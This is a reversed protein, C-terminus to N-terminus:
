SAARLKGKELVFREGRWTVKNGLLSALWIGAGALDRGPVLWLERRIGRGGLVKEAVFWGELLRLLISAALLGWAWGAGGSALVAAIAWLTSFTLLTARYGGPRADRITRGWRMQHQVFGSLTYEPLVTELDPATLRVHYGAQAIRRGLEYDDAVYELLPQFGGIAELAQRTFALTGGLGFRIGRELKWAVLVGSIFYTNIALAELRSGLTKGARARFICTVMGVAADSFPGMVSRLYERGVCMDGDNVILFPHRAAPLMQALSSVKRNPGLERPCIVLEIRRQPFEQQLRRVLEVAPDDASHLGFILEYDPYDLLCHSRFCEYSAPEVGKVPKLISVPLSPITSSSAARKQQRLFALGCAISAMSYGLGCGCLAGFLIELWQRLM